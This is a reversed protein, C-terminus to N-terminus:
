LPVAGLRRLEDVPEFFSCSGISRLGERARALEASDARRGRWDFGDATLAFAGPDEEALAAEEDGFVVAALVNLLGHERDTRVAHHLGATAKFSLGRERCGRLFRALDPVSPVATGGCRVKARLRRAALADLEDELPGALPLEVYVEAPLGAVGDLSRPRRLEVAADRPDSVTGDDLVLSLEREENAIERLRSAPWVLRGLMFREASKRARRDEAIADEADLSTPPFTPAHDILGALLAIRADAAM